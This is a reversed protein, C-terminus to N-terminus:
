FWLKIMNGLRISIIDIATEAGYFGAVAQGFIMHLGFILLVGVFAYGLVFAVCTTVISDYSVKKGLKKIAIKAKVDKVLRVVFLAILLPMVIFASLKSLIALYAFAGSLVLGLIGNSNKANDPNNYFWNMFFLAGAVFAGAIPAFLMVGGITLATIAVAYAFLVATIILEDLGVKRLLFYLFVLAGITALIPMFYLAFSNYGFILVSLATLYQSIINENENVFPITFVYDDGNLLYIADALYASHEMDRQTYSISGTEKYFHSEKKNMLSTENEDYYRDIKSVDFTDQQDILAQAKSAIADNKIRGNGTSELPSYISNTNTEVVGAEAISINPLAVLKGASNIGAFAIENIYLENPITITFWPGKGVNETKYNVGLCIWDGASMTEDTILTLEGFGYGYDPSSNLSSHSAVYFKPQMLDMPNNALNIWVSKLKYGNMTTNGEDETFKFTIYTYHEGTGVVGGNTQGDDSITAWSNPNKYLTTIPEVSARGASIIFALTCILILAILGIFSVGTKKSFKNM